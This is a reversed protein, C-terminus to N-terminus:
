WFFCKCFVACKKSFKEGRRILINQYVVHKNKEPTSISWNSVFFKFLYLSTHVGRDQDSTAM